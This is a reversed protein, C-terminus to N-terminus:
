FDDIEGSASGNEGFFILFYPSFVCNRNNVPSVSSHMDEKILDNWAMGFSLSKFRDLLVMVSNTHTHRLAACALWETNTVRFKSVGVCDDPKNPHSIMTPASRECPASSKAENKSFFVVMVVVGNKASNTELPPRGSTPFLAWRACFAFLKKKFFHSLNPTQTVKTHIAPTVGTSARQNIRPFSLQESWNRCPLSIHQDPIISKAFFRLLCYSNKQLTQM